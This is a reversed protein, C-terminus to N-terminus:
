LYKKPIISNLPPVEGFKNFYKKIELEEYEIAQEDTKTLCYSYELHNIHLKMWSPHKQAIIFLTKGESHYKKETFGKYFQKLRQKINKSKGISLIGNKDEGLFRSIKIGQIRIKYIGPEKPNEKLNDESFKKWKSWKNM